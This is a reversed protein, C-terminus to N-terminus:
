YECWSQKEVKRKINSTEEITDWKRRIIVLASEAEARHFFIKARSKKESWWWKVDYYQKTKWNDRYIKYWLDSNAIYYEWM